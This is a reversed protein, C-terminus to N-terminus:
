AEVLNVKVALEKNFNNLETVNLDIRPMTPAMGMQADIQNTFGDAVIGGMAYGRYTPRMSNAMQPGGVAAVDSQNWVVEGRHVIGAPDNAGGPGTYGGVSFGGPVYEEKRILDVNRYGFVLAAAAAAAGLLPGVFPVGVMARFAAIGSQITDIISQAIRNKKDADFAKKKISDADRQARKEIELKEAAFNEQSIEGADLKAQLAKLEEQEKIKVNQLEVAMQHARTEAAKGLIDQAVDATANFMAVANEKLDQQLKIRKAISDVYAQDTTDLTEAELEATFEIGAAEEEMAAQKKASVELAKTLEEENIQLSKAARAAEAEALKAENDIRKLTAEDIQDSTAIREKNMKRTEDFYAAQANFLDAEAQALKDKAEKTDGNLRLEEAAIDRKLQVNELQKDANVKELELAQNLFDLKAQGEAEDAARRLESIELKRQATGTMLEREQKDLDAQMKALALGDTIAQDVTKSAEEGIEIVKDVVNEIGTGAQIVGNAVKKFDLETLGEVIVAFATFRNILNDKLFNFLDIMAQQPDEFASILAGGLFELVDTIREMIVSGVTMIANLKNQGEESGRFYATLSALALGIAAIIAGVPTAIFALSARTMAVIGQVASYAGGTFNDIAGKYNGVNRQFSGGQQEAQKISGNLTNISKNMDDFKKAGEVTSRDIKNREIILEKLRQKQANLSNSEATIAGTLTKRNETEQKIKQDLQVKSAVYEQQTITGKKLSDNLEEQQEKLDILASETAELDKLAQTQDIEIKIIRTEEAM